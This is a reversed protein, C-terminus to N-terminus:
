LYSNVQFLNKGFKVLKRVRWFHVKTYKNLRIQLYKLPYRVDTRSDSAVLKSYINTKTTFNPGTITFSNKASQGDMLSLGKFTYLLTIFQVKREPSRHTCTPRCPQAYWAASVTYVSHSWTSLTWTLTSPSKPLLNEVKKSITSNAALKSFEGLEFWLRFTSLRQSFKQIITASTNSTSFSTLALTTPVQILSNLVLSSLLKIGEKPIM